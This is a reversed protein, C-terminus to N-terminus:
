SRFEAVNRPTLLVVFAFVAFGLNMVANCGMGCFVGAMNAPNGADMSGFAFNGGVGILFMLVGLAAVILTLVRAINSQRIVGVGGIILGMARLFEVAAISLLYWTPIKAMEARAQALGPNNPNQKAAFDVMAPMFVPLVSTCVSGLFVFCGLIIAIIGVALVTGSRNKKSIGDHDGHNRPEDPEDNDDGWKRRPAGSQFEDGGSMYYELQLDLL